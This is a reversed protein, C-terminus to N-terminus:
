KGLERAMREVRPLFHEKFVVDVDYALAHQRMDVRGQSITHAFANFIEDARPRAWGYGDGAMYSDCEVSDGEDILETMSSNDPLIVPCGCAMAEVGPLGFGEGHSASLYVDAANYVDALFQPTLLGTVLDYQPAFAVHTTSLGYFRMIAVLDEGGFVGSAEAHVYLLADPRQKVLGAFADFAEAFGKRSPRSMNAAVTVVLFRKNLTHGIVRGLRARAAERDGPAFVATDVGHPVRVVEKFYPALMRQSHRSTAWIWRATSLAAITAPAAPTCDIPTWACWPFHSYIEPALVHPDLLTIVADARFHEVHGLVVDNGYPHAARPYVPIGHWESPFGDAGAMAFIAVEHGAAKLRPVFLATQQSYASAGNPHNSVWLLRM